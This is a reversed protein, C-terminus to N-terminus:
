LNYLTAHRVFVYLASCWSRVEIQHKKVANVKTWVSERLWHRMDWRWREGRHLGVEEGGEVVSDEMKFLGRLCRWNKGLDSELRMSGRTQPTKGRRDGGYQGWRGGAVRRPSLDTGVEDEDVKEVRSGSCRARRSPGGVGSGSPHQSPFLCSLWTPFTLM